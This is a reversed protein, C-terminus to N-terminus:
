HRWPVVSMDVKDALADVAHEAVSSEFASVHRQGREHSM